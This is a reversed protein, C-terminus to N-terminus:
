DYDLRWINGQGSFGISLRRNNPIPIDVRGINFLGLLKILIYNQIVCHMPLPKDEFIAVEELDSLYKFYKILLYKIM